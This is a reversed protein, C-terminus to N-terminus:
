FTEMHGQGETKQTEPAAQVQLLGQAWLYGPLHSKARAAQRPTRTPM